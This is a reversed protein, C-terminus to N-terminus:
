QTYGQEEAAQPNREGTFEFKHIGATGRELEDLRGNAIQKGIVDNKM